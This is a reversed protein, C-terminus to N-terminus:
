EEVPCTTSNWAQVGGYIVEVSDYGARELLSAAAMSRLGSSCFIDIRKNKPVEDMRGPLQTLPINHAGRVVGESELEEPDRIDLVWFDGGSDIETCFDGASVTRMLAVPKGATYWSIMGGSLYGLINDFGIRLLSKRVESYDDDENVLLIPTGPEIFWGAFSPIGGAWLSLSGPIHGGGYSTEKRTDVVVADRAHHEFSDPDLPVPLPLGDEAASEELNREEMSRFYPPRPLVSGAKRIFDERGSAQLKPNLKRELGITTWERDIIGSGCVSGSGHAPCVIVGDGLPLIKEFLSDHLYEALEEIRDEGLLDTRGTDGAFLTDGTFVMWPEGSPDHLVYSMSGPTHGPTAIAEFTRGGFEWTQGNEVPKGYRYALGADAHWIEAGTKAALATSGILYDENRHTEFIRSIRFGEKVADEIYEDVDRKPDIVAAAGGDGILYSFHAIGPTKYRKFLM